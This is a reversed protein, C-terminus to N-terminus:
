NKREIIMREFAVPDMSAIPFKEPLKLRDPGLWISVLSALVDATRSADVVLARECSLQCVAGRDTDTHVVVQHEPLASVDHLLKTKLPGLLVENWGLRLKQMVDTAHNGTVVLSDKDQDFLPPLPENLGRMQCNHERQLTACDLCLSELGCASLQAQLATRNSSFYCMRPLRLLMAAHTAGTNQFELNLWEDVVASKYKAKQYVNWQMREKWEGLSRGKFHLLILGSPVEHAAYKGPQVLNSFIHPGPGQVQSTMGGKELELQPLARTNFIPKFARSASKKGRILNAWKSGKRYAERRRAETGYRTFRSILPASSCNVEAHGGGFWAKQLFIYYQQQEEYLGLVGPLSQWPDLPMVYEDMDANVVWAHQTGAFWPKKPQGLMGLDRAVTTPCMRTTCGQVSLRRANCNNDPLLQVQLLTVQTHPFSQWVSLSGDTTRGIGVYIHTVGISLHYDVWELVHPMENGATVCIVVPSSSSGTEGASLLLGFLLVVASRHCFKM